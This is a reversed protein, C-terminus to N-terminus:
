RVGAVDGGDLPAFRSILLLVMAVGFPLLVADLYETIIGFTFFGVQTLASGSLTDFAADGFVLGAAVVVFAGVANSLARRKLAPLATPNEAAVTQVAALVASVGAGVTFLLYMVVGWLEEFGDYYYLRDMLTGFSTLGKFVLWLGACLFVLASIGALILRVSLTVGNLFSLMGGQRPMGNTTHPAANQPPMYGQSGATGGVHTYPTGQGIGQSAGQSAAGTPKGCSSCFAAGDSLQTGCHPCFM